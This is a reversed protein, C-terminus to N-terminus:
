ADALSVPCPVARLRLLAPRPPGPQAAGQKGFKDKLDDSINQGLAIYQDVRVGIKEQLEKPAVYIHKFYM